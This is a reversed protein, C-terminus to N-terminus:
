QASRWPNRRHVLARVVESPQPRAFYFGQGLDCGMAQLEALQVPTEIGEATVTLGLAHGLRVVAAVIASDEPETGLGDVFSRDIKLAHVPLTKLYGLSSQGTGFDDIGIHVGRDTLARLVTIAHERDEMLVTETIELVLLSPDLGASTLADEVTEILDPDALQRASLNVAVSLPTANPSEAVWRAAETCAERLVWEGIPVILGTEEALPLFELPPVLGREPREWRVLAEFGIAESSDFRVLPQYHVRFERNVLARRLAVETELREVARERMPAVFLEVRGRGREKAVYKAVDADRLLRGADDDPGDSVVVGVSVSLFLERGNLRFPDEFVHQVRSGLALADEPGRAANCVIALEDGGVRTLLDGSRLVGQVRQAVTTLLRDGVDHGLSDNVVKFHDLDLLVLGVSRDNARGRELAAELAELLAVRNPLETLADHRTRYALQREVVTRDSVDVATGLLHTCRGDADTVPTVSVAITQRGGAAPADFSVPKRGRAAAAFQRVHSVLADAPLVSRLDGHLARASLGFLARYRINTHVFRFQGDDGVAVVFAAQPLADLVTAVVDASADVGLIAAPASRTLLDGISITTREGTGHETAAM